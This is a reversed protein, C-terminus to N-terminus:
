ALLLNIFLAILSIIMFAYTASIIVFNAIYLEHFLILHMLFFPFLFINVFLKLVLM